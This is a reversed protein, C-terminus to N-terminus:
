LGVSKLATCYVTMSGATLAEVAVVAVLKRAAATEIGAVAHTPVKIVGADWPNAGNSIAIAAKLCDEDDTKVGLAITAADTASTFTVHVDYQLMRPIYGIPLDPGFMVLEHTGIALGASANLYGVFTEERLTGAGPVVVVRVETASSGAAAIAYGLFLGLAKGTVVSNLADWYLKQGLTIAEGGSHPTNAIATSVKPLRFVGETKVEVTEGSEVTDCPIVIQGALVYPIDVTMAAPAVIPFSDSETLYSQM